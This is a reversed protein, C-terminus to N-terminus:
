VGDHRTMPLTTDGPHRVLLDASAVGPRFLRVVVRGRARDLHAGLWKFPDSEQGRLLADLARSLVPM